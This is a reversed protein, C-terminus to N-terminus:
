DGTRWHDGLYRLWLIRAELEYVGGLAAFYEANPGSAALDSVLAKVEVLAEETLKSARDFIHRRDKSRAIADIFFFRTRFADPAPSALSPTLDKIWNTLAELGAPSLRFHSRGAKGWAEKHVALMGRDGLRKMAPYISGASASWQSSLSREFEKAVSYASCPQRRWVVGLITCELETLELRSM